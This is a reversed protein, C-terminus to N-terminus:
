LCFFNNISEKRGVVKWSGEILRLLKLATTQSVGMEYAAKRSTLFFPYLKQDHRSKIRQVVERASAVLANFKAPDKVYERARPVRTSGRQDVIKAWYQLHHTKIPCLFWDDFKEYNSFEEPYHIEFFYRRAKALSDFKKYYFVM